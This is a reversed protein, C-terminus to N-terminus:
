FTASVTLSAGDARPSLRLHPTRAAIHDAHELFTTGWVIGTTGLLVLGAGAGLAGLAGDHCGGECGSSASAIMGYLALAVGSADLVSGITLLAIGASRDPQARNSAIRRLSLEIRVGRSVVQELTVADRQASAPVADLGISGLPAPPRPARPLPSSARAPASSARPGDAGAIPPGSTAVLAVLCAISVAALATRTLESPM